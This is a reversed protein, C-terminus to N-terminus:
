QIIERISSFSYDEDKLTGILDATLKLYDEHFRHHFLMGIINTHRSSTRIQEMIEEQAYHDATSEGSYKKILNASVSIERFKYGPRVDPHYNIKKGLLVDKRMLRGLCNKLRGKYTFKIKSSIAKYGLDDIAKLTHTNFTGYPFTFIPEWLNGFVRNMIEQGKKIDDYQEQYGRNGGFEMKQDPNALNHNYGHQIIEILDPFQKKIDILWESVEPTINAPEVAHSIPVKHDICLRTLDILSQDLTHRVDDNRFFILKKNKNM